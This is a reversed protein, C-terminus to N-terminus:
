TFVESWGNVAKEGRQLRGAGMDLDVSRPSRRLAGVEHMICPLDRMATQVGGPNRRHAADIDIPRMPIGVTRDIDRCGPLCRFLHYPVISHGMLGRQRAAMDFTSRDVHRDM